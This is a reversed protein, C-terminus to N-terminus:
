FQDQDGLVTKINLDFILSIKKVFYNIYFSDKIETELRINTKKFTAEPPLPVVEDIQEIFLSYALSGLKVHYLIFGSTFAFILVTLNFYFDM